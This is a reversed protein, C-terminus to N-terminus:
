ENSSEGTNSERNVTCSVAKKLELEKKTVVEFWPHNLAEELNIRKEPDTELLQAILDKAEHSM